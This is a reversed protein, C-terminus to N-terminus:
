LRIIVPKSLKLIYFRTWPIILIHKLFDVKIKWHLLILSIALIEVMNKGRKPPKSIFSNVM